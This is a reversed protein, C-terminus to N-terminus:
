SLNNSKRQLFIASILFVKIKIRIKLFCVNILLLINIFLCNKFNSRNIFICGNFADILIEWSIIVDILNYQVLAYSFIYRFKFNFSM